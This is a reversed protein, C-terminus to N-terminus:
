TYNVKKNFKAQGLQKYYKILNVEYDRAVGENEYEAIINYIIKGEKMLQKHESNRRNTYRRCRYWLGSGVYIVEGDLWHEYVVYKNIKRLDDPNLKHKKILQIIKQFSTGYIKAIDQNEMKNSLHQILKEKTPYM